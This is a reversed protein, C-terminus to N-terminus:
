FKSAYASGVSRNIYRNLGYGARARNSMEDVRGKGTVSYTYEYTSGDKFRVYIFGDGIAYGSVGSKGSLNAYPRYGTGYSSAQRGPMPGVFDDAM